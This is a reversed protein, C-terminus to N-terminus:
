DTSRLRKLVSVYKNPYQGSLMHELLPELTYALWRPNTYAFFPFSPFIVDITQCNGDSSIEKMFLLPNDPTGTFDTAGLVQRASLALIDLHEQSDFKGADYTIQASYADALKKANKFDFYHYKLLSQDSHHYSSWLPRMETLGRASAFQAVEDRIHAITFLCKSSGTSNTGRGHFAKHFAFVPEDDM